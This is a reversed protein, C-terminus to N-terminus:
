KKYKNKVIGYVIENYENEVAMKLVEEEDGGYMVEILKLVVDLMNNKCASKLATNHYLDEQGLISNDKEILKLAVNNMKHRCAYILATSGYVDICEPRSKEFELLKLAEQEKRRKCLYILYTNNEMNNVYDENYLNNGLIKEFYFKQDHHLAHSLMENNDDIIKKIYDQTIRFVKGNHEVDIFTNDM